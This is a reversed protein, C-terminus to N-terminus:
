TKLNMRVLTSTVSLIKKFHMRGIFGYRDNFVVM